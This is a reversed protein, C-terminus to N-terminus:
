RRNIKKLQNRHVDIHGKKRKIVGIQYAGYNECAMQFIRKVVPATEENPILHHKDKPDKMYGYPAYAATFEGNMAKTRYASRIKKSIDRAYWENMINKFPTLKPISDKNKVKLIWIIYVILPPIIIFFISVVKHKIRQINVNPAQEPLEVGSFLQLQM